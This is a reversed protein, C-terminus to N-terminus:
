ATLTRALVSVGIVLIISMGYGSLIFMSKFFTKMVGDDYVRLMAVFIYAPIYLGAIVRIWDMANSLFPYYYGLWTSLASIISILFFFAHTHFLFIIHELYFRGSLFYLLQMFAAVFPIGLIMMLPISDIIDQFFQEPDENFQLCTLRVTITLWSDSPWDELSCDEQSSMVEDLEGFDEDAELERLVQDAIRLGYAEGTEPDIEDSFEFPAFVLSEESIDPTPNVGQGAQGSFGNELNFENNPILFFLVSLILYLRFPPLYHMRRGKLYENTLKGPHLILPSLSRWLRSDFNFLGDATEVLFETFTLVHTDSKQGCTPCYVTGSVGTNCNKCHLSDTHEHTKEQM